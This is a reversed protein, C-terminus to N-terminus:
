VSVIVITLIIIFAIILAVSKVDTKPQNMVSHIAILNIFTKLFKYIDM